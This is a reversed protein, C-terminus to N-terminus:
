MERAAREEPSFYHTVSRSRYILGECTILSASSKYFNIKRVVPTLKGLVGSIKAIV